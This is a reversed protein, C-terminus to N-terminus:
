EGNKAFLEQLPTRLHLPINQEMGKALDNREQPDTHLNFYEFIEKPEPYNFSEWRAKEMGVRVAYEHGEIIPTDTGAVGAAEISVPVNRVSESSIASLYEPKGNVFPIVRSPLSHGHLLPTLDRGKFTDPVSVGALSLITPAMDMLSVPTDIRMRNVGPVRMFLPIHVEEEYLSQAHWVKNHEGFAEGHDASLIIVTNALTEKPIRELFDAINDDAQAIGQDYRLEFAHVREPDLAPKENEKLFDFMTVSEYGELEQYLENYPARPEFPDHVEFTHVLLFFPSPDAIITPLTETAVEFPPGVNTFTLEGDEFGRTIADLIFVVPLPVVGQVRVGADRLASQLHPRTGDDLERYTINTALDSFYMSTFSPLTWPSNASAQDFIVGHEEFFATTRPLTDREYGYTGIHRAGLTDIMILIVNCGETCPREKYLPFFTAILVGLLVLVFVLSIKKM